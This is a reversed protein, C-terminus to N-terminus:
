KQCIINIQNKNNNKKSGQFWIEYINVFGDNTDEEIYGVTKLVMFSQFSQTPIRISISDNSVFFSSQLAQSLEEIDKNLKTSYQQNEDLYYVKYKSDKMNEDFNQYIATVEEDVSEIINRKLKYIYDERSNAYPKIYIITKEESNDIYMEDDKSFAKCIKEGNNNLFWFENEIKQPKFSYDFEFNNDIIIEKNNLILHTFTSSNDVPDILKSRILKNSILDKFHQKDIQSLDYLTKNGIGFAKKYVKPLIQEGPKHNFNQIKNGNRVGQSLDKLLKRFQLLQPKYRVDNKQISTMAVVCDETWMNHYTINGLSDVEEWTITTPNLDRGKYLLKTVILGPQTLFQNHLLQLDKPSKIILERSKGEYEIKIYDGLTVQTINTINKIFDPSSQLYQEIVQADSILPNNIAVRAKKIIDEKSLIDGNIDEYITIVGHSANLVVPIGTTEARIIKNNLDSTLFQALKYFLDPSSFPIQVDIGQSQQEIIKTLINIGDSVDKSSELNKKLLKAIRKQFESQDEAPTGDENFKFGYHKILSELNSEIIQSLASWTEEVLEMTQGNFAINNYAQTPNTMESEDAHHSADNQVGFDDWNFEMTKLYHFDQADNIDNVNIAGSKVASKNALIAIFEEKLSYDKKNICYESVLNAILEFSKESTSYENNQIEYCYEAGLGEWMDDFYQGAQTNIEEDSDVSIWKIILGQGDANYLGSYKFLKDGFYRYFDPNYSYNFYNLFDDDFMPIQVHNMIKTLTRLDMGGEKYSCLKLRSNGYTQESCKFQTLTGKNKVFGIVKRTGFLEKNPISHKVWYSTLPNHFLMGDHVDQNTKDGIFNYLPVNVDNIVAIKGKQPLGYEPNITFPTNSAVASNNRKTSTIYRDSKNSGKHMEYPKVTLQVFADSLLNFTIYFKTLIQKGFETDLYNESKIFQELMQDFNDLNTYETSFYEKLKSKVDKRSIDEKDQLRQIASLIPVNISSINNLVYNKYDQKFKSKNKIKIFNSLIEPNLTVRNNIDYKVKELEQQIQVETYEPFEERIKNEFYQRNAKKDIVYHYFETFEINSLIDGLTINSTNLIENIEEITHNQPEGSYVTLIQNYINVLDEELRGWYGVYQKTYLDILEDISLGLFNILNDNNYYATNINVTPPNPKDSVAVPVISVMNNMILNYFYQSNISATLHEEKTLELDKIRQNDTIAVEKRFGIPYKYASKAEKSNLGKTTFQQKLLFNDPNYNDFLQLNRIFQLSQNTTIFQAQVNGLTDYLKVQSNQNDEVMLNSISIFSPLYSISDKFDQEFKDQQEESDLHLKIKNTNQIAFESLWTILTFFHNIDEKSSSIKNILNDDLLIGFANAIYNIFKIHHISDSKRDILSNVGDYLFHLNYYFEENNKVKSIITNYITNVIYQKPKKIDIASLYTISGDKNIIEHVTPNHNKIQFLFGDHISLLHQLKIKDETHDLDILAEDYSEKFDFLAEKIRDVKSSGVFDGVRYDDLINLLDNFNFLNIKKDFDNNIIDQIILYLKDIDIKSIYKGREYELSQLWMSVINNDHLSSDKSNLEENWNQKVIKNKKLYYKTEDYELSGHRNIGIINGLINDLVQDFNNLVYWAIVPMLKDYDVILSGSIKNQIKDIEKKMENMVNEYSNYNTEQNLIHYLYKYNEDIDFQNAPRTKLYNYIIKFLKNKYSYISQNLNEDNYILTNDVQDWISTAFFDRQLKDITEINLKGDFIPIFATDQKSTIHRINSSIGNSKNYLFDFNNIENFIKEYFDKKGKELGSNQITIKLNNVINKFNEIDKHELFVNYIKKFFNKLDSVNKINQKNIEKFLDITNEKFIIECVNSM